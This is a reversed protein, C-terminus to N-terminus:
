MQLNFCTELNQGDSTKVGYTMGIERWIDFGHPPSLIYLRLFWVM